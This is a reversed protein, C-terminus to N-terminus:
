PAPASLDLILMKLPRDANVKYKMGAWDFSKLILWTTIMGASTAAVTPVFIESGAPNLAYNAVLLIPLGAGGYILLRKLTRMPRRPYMKIGSVMDPRVFHKGEVVFGSDTISTIIWPTFHRDGELRLRIEDGVAYYVRRKGPPDFAV